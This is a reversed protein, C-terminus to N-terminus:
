LEHNLDSAKLTTLKEQDPFLCKVIERATFTPTKKLCSRLVEPALLIKYNKVEAPQSQIIALTQHIWSSPPATGRERYNPYRKEARYGLTLGFPRHFQMPGSITRHM